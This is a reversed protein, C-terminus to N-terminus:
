TESGLEAGPPRLLILNALGLHGIEDQLWLDAPPPVLRTHVALVALSAPYGGELRVVPDSQGPTEICLPLVVRVRRVGAFDLHPTNGFPWRVGPHLQFM